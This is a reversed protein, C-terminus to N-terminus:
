TFDQKGIDHHSIHHSLMDHLFSEPLLFYHDFSVPMPENIVKGIGRLRNIFTINQLISFCVVTTTLTNNVVLINNISLLKM